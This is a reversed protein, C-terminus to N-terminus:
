NNNFLTRRGIKVMPKIWRLDKMVQLSVQQKNDTVLIRVPKHKDFASKIKQEDNFGNARCIKIIENLTAGRLKIFKRGFRSYIEDFGKKAYRVGRLVDKELDEPGAWVVGLFDECENYLPIMVRKAADKLKNAEDLILLPKGISRNQFFAIVYDLLQEKKHLGRSTNIGLTSCLRELFEIAGWERCRLMYVEAGAHKNIVYELGKSKGMGANDSIPLFLSNEKADICITEISKLDRTEVTVWGNKDTDNQPKWGLKMGVSIWAEHGRTVYRDKLMLSIASESIGCFNAVASATKLVAVKNQLLKIINQKDQQTIKTM